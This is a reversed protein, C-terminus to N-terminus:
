INGVFVKVAPGTMWIDDHDDWEIQLDGGALSVTVNRKSRGTKAAAVLAACAGTGCALTEGAGREWVKMELHNPSHVKIFDVNTHEPFRSHTMLTKGASHWDWEFSDVFTVAHPVGTNVPVIPFERGSATILYEPGIQEQDLFPIEACEWKPQGMNVRVRTPEDHNSPEITCIKVGDGTLVSFKNKSVLGESAVHAAFCRLGNGCMAAQSGDSNYIEMSFDAQDTDEITILGDAGIGFRRDCFKIALEGINSGSVESKQALIFDNGLGQWKHFKM